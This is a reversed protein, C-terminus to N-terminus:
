KNRLRYISVEEHVKHDHANIKLPNIKSLSIRNCRSLRDASLFTGKIIGFESILLKSFNSCTPNYLCSASFQVSISNQYAYMLSGALLSVPNYRIVPNKSSPLMFKAKAPTLLPDTFDRNKVLDIDQSTMQAHVSFVFGSLAILFIANKVRKILLKRM